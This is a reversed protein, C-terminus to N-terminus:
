KKLSKKLVNRSKFFDDGVQGERDIGELTIVKLITICIIKLDLALSWHDVYWVDLKFKQDWDLNNRGNIQAWGTIGPRMDHRRFQEKTYHDRYEPLFPRPGVLSMEGRLVNILSPIEDLSTMRLLNGYKTIRKENPLLDGKANTLNKMTRFKIVTFPKGKYGLRTQLFFIPRNLFLLSLICVMFLVPFLLVLIFISLVVDIIRKLIM